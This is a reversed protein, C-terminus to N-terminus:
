MEGKCEKCRTGHTAIEYIASVAVLGYIVKVVGMSLGWMAIDKHWIALGWNLGGIVLLIFSVTHLGMHKGLM